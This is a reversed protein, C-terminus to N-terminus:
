SRLEHPLHVDGAVDADLDLLAALLARAASAEETDDYLELEAIAAAIPAATPSLIMPSHSDRRSCGGSIRRVDRTSRDRDPGHVSDTESLM